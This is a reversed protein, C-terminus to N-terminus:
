ILLGLQTIDFEGFLRAKLVAASEKSKGIVIMNNVYLPLIIFNGNDMLHFYACHDAECRSLGLESHLILYSICCRPEQKLGYPSKILRCVLNEKSQEFFDEPQTIFIEEDLNVCLLLKSMQSSLSWNVVFGM